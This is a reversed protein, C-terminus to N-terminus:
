ANGGQAAKRRVSLDFLYAAEEIMEVHEARQELYHPEHAHRSRYAKNELEGRINIAVLHLAGAIQADTFRRAM